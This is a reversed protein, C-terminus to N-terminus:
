YPACRALTMCQIVDYDDRVARQNASYQKATTAHISSDDVYRTSDLEFRWQSILKLHLDHLAYCMVLCWIEILAWTGKLQHRHWFDWGKYM